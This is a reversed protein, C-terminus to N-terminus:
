LGLEDAIEQMAQLSLAAFEELPMGFQECEAIIERNVARAFDKKKMRKLISKPKVSALKRDPMVLATAVILGTITEAAALAHEPATRREKGLAEANHSQILSILEDPLGAEKLIPVAKLTHEAPSDKTMEYDIDHLLGVIGWTEPDGGLKPALKRMIAETALCHKVLNPNTIHKKVLKLAEDHSLNLKEM